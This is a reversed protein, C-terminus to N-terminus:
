EPLIGVRGRMKNKEIGPGSADGFFPKISGFIKKYLGAIQDELNSTNFSSLTTKTTYICKNSDVAFISCYSDMISKRDQGTPYVITYVGTHVGVLVGLATLAVSAVATEPAIGKSELLSYGYFVVVYKIGNSSALDWAAYPLSDPNHATDEALGLTIRRTLDDDVKEWRYGNAEINGEVYKKM